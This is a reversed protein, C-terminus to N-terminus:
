IKKRPHLVGNRYECVFHIQSDNFLFINDEEPFPFDGKVRQGDSLRKLVREDSFHFIKDEFISKVDIAKTSSLEELPTALSIPIHWVATRRLWSLYWGTWLLAWLDNAISRIYTGAAVRFEVVLKPYSFSQIKYSFIETDRIKMEIDEGARVRDLARKGNIKLASYKPPVQQIEGLFNEKLVWNLMAETIDQQARKQKDDSLFIIETDSDFSASSGDLMIDAIYSKSDKEIYSILKTYNGTAVLLGGTALPDLTGTHGIRKVWLIRRMDRLVDFSTRGTPKDIYFFADM